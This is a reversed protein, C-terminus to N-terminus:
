MLRADRSKGGTQGLGVADMVSKAAQARPDAMNGLVGKAIPAITKVVPLVASAVSGLASKLSDFFGGGVLRRVSGSTIFRNERQSESLKEMVMQKTVLGIYFASAGRSTVFIGSNVTMIFFEYASASLDDGTNNTVTLQVQLNFNGLSGPAYYDENLNIHEGFNLVLVSGATNIVSSAFVGGDATSIQVSGKFEPYTQTSGGEVSYKYLTEKTASSLIGALNNFNINLPYSGSLPLFSDADNITKQGQVKRAVLILKDPIMNLNINTSTLQQTVGDLIAPCPTKQYQFDVYPVVNTPKQVFSVHPTKFVFQLSSDQFATSGFQMSNAVVFLSGSGVPLNTRWVRNLDAVNFVFNANTIGYLDSADEHAQWSFPSLMIPETSTFTITVKANQGNALDGALGTSALVVSATVNYSGRPLSKGDGGNQYASLPNNIAYLADEYNQYNDRMTPYASNLPQNEPTDNLITLIDIMERTNMTVNASNITASMTNMLQHLPYPALASCVVVSDGTAPSVTVPGGVGAINPLQAESITAGTNNTVLYSFTCTSQWLVRRGICTNQTPMQINFIQSSQSQSNANYLRSTIQAAGSYVAYDLKDTSVISSDYVLVPNYNNAM